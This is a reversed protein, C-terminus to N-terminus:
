KNDGFSKIVDTYDYNCDEVKEDYDLTAIYEFIGHPDQDQHKLDIVAVVNRMYNTPCTHENYYYEHHESIEM